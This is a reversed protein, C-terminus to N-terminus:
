EIPLVVEEQRQGQRQDSLRKDCCQKCSITDSIGILGQGQCHRAAQEEIWNTYADM